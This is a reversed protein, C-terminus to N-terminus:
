LLLYIHTAVLQTPLASEKKNEPTAFKNTLKKLQNSDL